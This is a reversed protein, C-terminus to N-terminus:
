NLGAQYRKNRAWKETRGYRDKPEQHSDLMSLFFFEPGVAVRQGRTAGRRVGELRGEEQGGIQRTEWRRARKNRVHLGSGSERCAPRVGAWVPQLNSPM